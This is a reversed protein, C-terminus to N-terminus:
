WASLCKRSHPGTIPLAPITVQNGSGVTFGNANLSTILNGLIDTNTGLEKTIDGVMTRSRVVTPENNDGKIIVVDPQFDTGTISLGAFGTGVYSGTEVRFAANRVDIKANAINNTHFTDAQAASFFIATNNISNGGTGFKVHATITLDATAGNTMSGVDWMGTTDSYTGQSPAQAIYTVSPPLNDLITIASGDHPGNNTLSITYSITDGEIPSPKDVANSVAIDIVPDDHFAMWYYKQTDQNIANDDGVQFGNPLFAQIYNAMVGWLDFRFSNDGSLSSMRHRAASSIDDRKIVLFEPEFGLGSIDRNDLGNGIYENGTIKGPTTRWAVYHHNALSENVTLDTGVQFGNGLFLEIKNPLEDSPDFQSSLDGVQTPFRQVAHRNRENMVMLYTPKMGLTNISFNDAGTGAYSGVVMEGPAAQFAVWYYDAGPFNVHPDSGITFGDADLSKIMNPQLAAPVALPKTADGAMTSSRAVTPLAVDGRIIVFDPKFGLSTFPRSISNDGVYTGTRVRMAGSDTVVLLSPQSSVVPSEKSAYASQADASTSILMLGKNPRTGESWERALSTIDATVAGLSSPTLSGYVTAIDYATGLTAWTAGLETWDDTIRHIDVPDGSPDAGTVFFLATASLIREGAPIASLDFRFVARFHDGPKNNSYLQLDIGHNESPSSEKLWCDQDASLKYVGALASAPLLALALVLLFICLFLYNNKM